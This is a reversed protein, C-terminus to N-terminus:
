KAHTTFSKDLPPPPPPPLLVVIGRYYTFHVYFLDPHISTKMGDVEYLGKWGEMKLTKRREKWEDCDSMRGRDSESKGCLCLVVGFCVVVVGM